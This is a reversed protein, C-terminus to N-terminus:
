PAYTITRAGGVGSITMAMDSAYTVPYTEAAVAQLHKVYNTSGVLQDLAVSTAGSSLYYQAAASALTRANNIVAADQSRVRIKGFQPIAMAALLGIIVVVIM